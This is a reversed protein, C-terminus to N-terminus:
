EVTYDYRYNSYEYDDDSYTEVSVIVYDRYIDTIWIYENDGFDSKIKSKVLDGVKYLSLENLQTKEKDKSMEKEGGEEKEIAQAVLLNFEKKQSENLMTFTASDYAPKTYNYNSGLVATGEFYMDGDHHEVGDDSIYTDFYRYESSTNIKIG